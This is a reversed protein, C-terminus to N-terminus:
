SLMWNQLALACCCAQLYHLILLGTNAVKVLLLSSSCSVHRTDYLSGAILVMSYPQMLYDCGGAETQVTVHLQAICYCSCACPM